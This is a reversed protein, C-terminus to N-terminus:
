RTAGDPPIQRIGQDLADISEFRQIELRTSFSLSPEIGVNVCPDQREIGIEDKRLILTLKKAKENKLYNLLDM